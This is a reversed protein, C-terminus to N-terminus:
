LPRLSCCEAKELLERARGRGRRQFVEAKGDLSPRKRKKGDEGQRSRSAQRTM